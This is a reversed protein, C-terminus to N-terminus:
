NRVTVDSSTNVVFGGVLPDRLIDQCTNKLLMSRINESARELAKRHEIMTEDLVTLAAADTPTEGCVQFAAVVEVPIHCAALMLALADTQYLPATEQQADTPLKSSM